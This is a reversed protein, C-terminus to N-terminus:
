KMETVLDAMELLEKPCYRGTLICSAFLDTTLHQADAQLSPSNLGQARHLEYRSFALLIVAIAVVGGIAYPLRAAKVREGAWLVNRVIEYGALLIIGSTVLALREGVDM